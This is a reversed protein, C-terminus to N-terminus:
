EDNLLDNLLERGERRLLTGLVMEGPVGFERGYRQEITGVHTDERKRCLPGQKTRSREGKMGAADNSASV